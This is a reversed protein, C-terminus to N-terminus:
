FERAWGVYAGGSSVAAVPHSHNSGSPWLIAGAIAAGAGVAVLTIGVPTLSPYVYKHSAGDRLGYYLCVGGSVATVSGGAIMTLPWLRSPPAAPAPEPDPEPVVPAPSTEALKRIAPDVQEFVTDTCAECAVHEAVPTSGVAFWTLDVTVAGGNDEVRAFLLRPTKARADVVGRACALDEIIFCNDLTELADHSMPTDVATFGERRLVKAVHDELRGRVGATGRVVLGIRDDGSPTDARAVSVAAILALLVVLGRM